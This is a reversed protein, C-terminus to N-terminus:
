AISRLNELRIKLFRRNLQTHSRRQYNSLRARILSLSKSGAM